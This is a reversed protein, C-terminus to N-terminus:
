WSRGVGVGARFRVGGGPVIPFLCVFPNAFFGGTQGGLRIGASLSLAIGVDLGDYAGRWTVDMGERAEPSYGVAGFGLGAELFFPSGGLFFRAAVLGGYITPSDVPLGFEPMNMFVTGGVTFFDNIDREYRVGLGFFTIELSAWNVSPQNLYRRLPERGAVGLLSSVVGDNRVDATFIRRIIATEVEIAQVRLRYINGFPELVGTFIFQVGALRGISQATADDILGDLVLHQEAAILELQARNVVLFRQTNVFAMIMEDILHASMMVSGSRMAIVAVRSDPEMGASFENAANWIADGLSVTQAHATGIGSVLMCALMGSMFLLKKM